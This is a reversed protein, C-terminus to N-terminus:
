EWETTGPPKGTLDYLVRNIGRVKLLRRVITQLVELPMLESGPRAAEGTMFNVTLFPRLVISRQRFKWKDIAHPISIVPVQQLVKDLGAKTLEERVIADAKQLQRVPGRRPRTKTFTQKIGDPSIRKGFAYTVRTVDKVQQPVAKALKALEEWNEEGSLVVTRGYRRGDGQQGVSRVPIVNVATAATAFAGLKQRARSIRWIEMPGPLLHPNNLLRIALGPGPFPQRQTIADSLGLATGLARVGPKYLDAIPEIIRGAARLQRALPSDNHHTKITDGGHSGSEILDPRISGQALLYDDPLGMEAAIVPQVRMFADGIIKRKIEPQWVNRLKKTRRGNVVTTANEFFKHADHIRVDIGEALLDKQVKEAEGLRMFGHDILVAHIQEKPVGAQILKAMVSSDVGGSLFMLVHKTGIQTRVEDIRQEVGKTEFTPKVKAVDFLFRAFLDDGYETGNVEPHFQVGVVKKDDSIFGAIKGGESIASAKFSRPLKKIEDGHNMWVQESQGSGAMVGLTDIGDVRRIRHRGFESSGGHKVKGGQHHAILQAGYCIGYVPKKLFAPNLRPADRDYVSQDGGSLIYAKYGELQQPDVDYPYVDARVGHREVADKIELTHQSRYNIVAVADEPPQLVEPTVDREFTALAM